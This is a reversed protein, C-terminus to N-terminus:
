GLPRIHASDMEEPTRLIFVQRFGERRMGRLSRRLRATNRTIVEPTVGRQARAANRQLCIEDPLDFVIAVAPRRYRDAMRVLPKRASPLVNTADVVTLRRRRLRKEVILHAVDFADRSAAQNDEDDSVLARCHDTSVVQTAAFHRSAFTSKGCGPAGVLVILASRPTM